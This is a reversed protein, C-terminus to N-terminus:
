LPTRRLGGCGLLAQIVNRVGTIGFWIFPGMWALVWWSNISAFSAAAVAFGLGIKLVNKITNSLYRWSLGLPRLLAHGGM